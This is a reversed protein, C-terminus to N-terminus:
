ALVERGEIIDFYRDVPISRLLLVFKAQSGIKGLLYAPTQELAPSMEFSASEADVYIQRLTKILTAVDSELDAIRVELEQKTAM